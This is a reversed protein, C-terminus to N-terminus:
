GELKDRSGAEKGDQYGRMLTKRDRSDKSLVTVKKSKINMTALENTVEVPLCLSLSYCEVNRKLGEQIGEIFGEVYSNRMLLSDRRAIERLKKEEKLYRKFFIDLCTEAYDFMVKFVDVDSELGIIKIFSEGSGVVRVAKVRFNDAITMALMMRWTPCTKTKQPVVWNVVSRKQEEEMNISNLDVGEKLAIVQAKEMASQAEHINNSRKALELLDRITDLRSKKSM